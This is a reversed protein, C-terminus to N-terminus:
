SSSTHLSTPVQNWKMAFILLVYRFISGLHQFCYIDYDTAQMLPTFMLFVVFNTACYLLVGSAYYYGSYNLINEVEKKIFLHFFFLVSLGILIISSMYASPGTLSNLNSVFVFDYISILLFAAGVGIFWMRIRQAKLFKLFIFIVLLSEIINWWALLHANTKGLEYFTGSLMEVIFVLLVLIPLEKHKQSSFSNIAWVCAITLAIRM